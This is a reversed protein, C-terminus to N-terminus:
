HFLLFFRLHFSPVCKQFCVITSFCWKVEGREGGFRRFPRTQHQTARADDAADAAGDQAGFDRVGRRAPRPSFSSFFLRTSFFTFRLIKHYFFSLIFIHFILFRLITLSVFTNLCLIKTFSNTPKLFSFFVVETFNPFFTQFM